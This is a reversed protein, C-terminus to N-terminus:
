KMSVSVSKGEYRVPRVTETGALRIKFTRQQLMGEFQGQRDGITLTRTKDNWKM